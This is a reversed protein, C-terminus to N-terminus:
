IGLAKAVDFEYGATKLERALSMKWADAVDMPTWVVGAIDSPLEMDGKKLAAVRERGLRGAFYGLELIVNQRARLKLDDSAVENGKRLGGVDDPTMLIIAFGVDAEKEFKEIITRGGNAQEHLIVPELGCGSIFRAVTAKAADDQGHVLFVKKTGAPAMLRSGPEPASQASVGIQEDILDLREILSVLRNHKQVIRKKLEDVQQGLSQRGMAVVGMGYWNYEDAYEPTTFARRLFEFNFDNWRNYASRVAELGQESQVQTELIENVADVRAILQARVEERPKALLAPEPKVPTSTTKRAL